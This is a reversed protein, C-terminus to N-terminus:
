IRSFLLVNTWLNNPFSGILLESRGYYFIFSPSKLNYQSCIRLRNLWFVRCVLFFSLMSTLCRSKLHISNWKFFFRTKCRPLFLLFLAENCFTSWDFCVKLKYKPHILSNQPDWTRIAFLNLLAQYEGNITTYLIKM